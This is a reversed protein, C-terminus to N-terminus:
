ASSRAMSKLVAAARGVAREDLFYPVANAFGETPSPLGRAAEVIRRLAFEHLVVLTVHERVPQTSVDFGSRTPPTPSGDDSSGPSSKEGLARRGDAWGFKM